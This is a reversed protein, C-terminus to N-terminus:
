RAATVMMSVDDRIGLENLDYAIGRRTAKGGVILDARIQAGRRVPGPLESVILQAFKAIKTKEDSTPDALGRSVYQDALHSTRGPGLSIM